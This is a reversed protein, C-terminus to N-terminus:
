QTREHQWSDHQWPLMKFENERTDQPMLLTTDTRLRSCNRNFPLSVMTPESCV